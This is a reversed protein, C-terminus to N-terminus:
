ISPGLKVIEACFAALCLLIISVLILNGSLSGHQMSFIHSTGQENRSKASIHRSATNEAKAARGFQALASPYSCKLQSPSQPKIM